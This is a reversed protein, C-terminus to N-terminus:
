NIIFNILIRRIIPPAIKWEEVISQHEFYDCLKKPFISLYSWNNIVMLGEPFSSMM